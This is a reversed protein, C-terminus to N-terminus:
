VVPVRVPLLRKLSSMSLLLQGFRSDFVAGALIPVLERWILVCNNLMQSKGTTIGIKERSYEFEVSATQKDGTALKM